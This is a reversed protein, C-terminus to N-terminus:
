RVVKALAREVRFLDDSSQDQPAVWPGVERAARNQNIRRIYGDASIELIEVGGHAARNPRRAGAVSYAFPRVQTSVARRSSM